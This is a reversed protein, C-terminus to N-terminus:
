LIASSRASGRLRGTLVLIAARPLTTDFSPHALDDLRAEDLQARVDRWAPLGMDGAKSQIGFQHLIWSSPEGSGVDKGPSKLGKAICDKGFEFGGHLFHVDTFDRASLLALLPADFERESATDLFVAVVDRLANFEERKKEIIREFRRIQQPTALDLAKTLKGMTEANAHVQIPILRGGEDFSLKMKDLADLYADVTNVGAEIVNGTISTTKDVQEVFMSMFHQDMQEAADAVIARLEDLNGYVIGRLGVDGSAVM